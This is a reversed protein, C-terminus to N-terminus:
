FTKKIILMISMRVPPPPEMVSALYWKARREKECESKHALGPM